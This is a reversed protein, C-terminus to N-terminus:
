LYLPMVGQTPVRIERGDSIVTRTGGRQPMINIADPVRFPDAIAAVDRQTLSIFRNETENFGFVFLLNAGIGEFQERVYREVGQGVSVLVIVAAVGITIGLMTLFSRLKNSRLGMLAVRINEFFTSM